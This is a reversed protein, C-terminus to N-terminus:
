GSRGEPEGTPRLWLSVHSPSMATGVTDVVETRLSDLDLGARLRTSFAAVVQTADYRSRYFRRDIFRQVRSRVPRFLAAVVLTSAAVALDSESTLPGLAGQLTVVSVVYTLTLFATLSLYVLTRNLIVDIDYLRYKLMAIGAAVAFAGPGGVTESFLRTAANDGGPLFDNVILGVMGIVAAFAVWKLQQRQDGRARRFRVILSVLSVVLCLMVAPFLGFLLSEWDRLHEVGISQTDYLMSVGRHPWLAAAFVVLAVTWLLPFWGIPAWWRSLLRGDPFVLMLIPFFSLEPAWAWVQLWAMADGGPLSGPEVVLARVAYEYGFRSVVESAGIAVMIWGVPNHPHKWAIVAGVPVFSALSLFWHADSPFYSFDAGTDGRTFGLVLIAGIFILGLLCIGGAAWSATSRQPRPGMSGLHSM